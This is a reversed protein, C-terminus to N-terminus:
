PTVSARASKSKVKTKGSRPAADALVPREGAQLVLKCATPLQDLTMSPKPKPKAAPDTPPPPKRVIKMWHDIEQGCGDDSARPPQNTCGDSDPPCTMRIHMHYHHGWYPQVKGLHKRDLDKRECMAKKIGPHVFIRDVEGYSAARLILRAHKESWVAPDVEFGDARLMSTASLEEREQESLRRDPMPTLWIDADLGVQHSAHGTLMPGGRPQSLDGVLLGSWGDGAKADKALREILRILKPHGWNRNRSLRMAQWAEGDIALPEAGALCGKAYFGIARAPLPAANAAAGFLKRAETERGKKAPGTVPQPSPQSAPPESTAAPATTGPLALAPEASAAPLSPAQALLRDIGSAALLVALAGVVGLGIVLALRSASRHM